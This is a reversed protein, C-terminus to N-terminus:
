YRCKGESLRRSVDMWNEFTGMDQWYGDYFSYTLDLDRMYLKLVETIELENRKSLEIKELKSWLTHDFMYCGVIALNSKPQKPKEEIGVVKEDEIEAIGYSWPSDVKKLFVHAGRKDWSRYHERIGCEFYNDGLIVVCSEKPRMFPRALKLADAIGGEGEQYTYYLRRAGVSRGNKFIELFKGPSHGGTILIIDKIGGDVLTALPLEVMRKDYVPLLHKNDNRTLPYLRTGLGGALVIGKM